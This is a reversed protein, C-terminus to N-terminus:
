KVVLCLRSKICYLQWAYRAHLANSSSFFTNTRKHKSNGQKRAVIVEVTESSPGAVPSNSTFTVEGMSEPPATSQTPLTQSHHLTHPNTQTSVYLEQPYRNTPRRKRAGQRRASIGEETGTSPGAVPSSQRTVIYEAPEPGEAPESQLQLTTSLAPFTQSRRLAQSNTQPLLSTQPPHPAVDHSQLEARSSEPSLVHAVEEDDVMEDDPQLAQPNTQPSLQPPSSGITQQSAYTPSVSYAQSKARSSEPSLVHAVEEEDVM